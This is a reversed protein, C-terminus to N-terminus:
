NLPLNDCSSLLAELESESNAGVRVCLGYEEGHIQWGPFVQLARLLNGVDDRYVWVRRGFSLQLMLSVLPRIDVPPSSKQCVQRVRSWFESFRSGLDPDIFYRAEVIESM